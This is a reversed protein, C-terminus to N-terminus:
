FKLVAVFHIQFIFILCMSPLSHSSSHQHTSQHHVSCRPWFPSVDGYSSPNSDSVESLVLTLKYLQLQEGASAEVSWYMCLPSHAQTCGTTRDATLGSLLPIRLL